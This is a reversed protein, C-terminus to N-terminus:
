PRAGRYAHAGARELLRYEIGDVVRQLRRPLSHPRPLVHVVIHYALWDLLRNM